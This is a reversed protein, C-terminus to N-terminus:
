TEPRGLALYLATYGEVGPLVVVTKGAETRLPLDETKPWVVRAGMVKLKNPNIRIEAAIPAQLEGKALLEVTNLVQVLIFQKSKEYFFSGHLYETFPTPVIEAGPDPILQRVLEHIWARIWFPRDSVGWGSQASMARFIPVGIYIAQGKGFKNYAIATGASEKGPPPPGWNFWKNKAMDEVMVPLRYHMVEEATTRKLYLFSGPLGVTGQSLPKALTHGSSGLYTSIFDGKLKGEDDYHM